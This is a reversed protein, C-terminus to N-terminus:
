DRDADLPITRAPRVGVRDFRVAPITWDRNASRVFSAQLFYGGGRIGRMVASRVALNGEEKDDLAQEGRAEPYKGPRPDQCWCWINGHMDFLGYDNPKLSGVPWTRESSNNLYWAYKKLLEETEGYYRATETEARCAYEMEAETPLRYGSLGLYNVKMKMWNQGQGLEIKPMPGEPDKEYCWQDEPLGEQQSLWNCYQAAEHWLVGLIPCTPDPMKNMGQHSFTPFLRRFQKLTVAHAALAFTRGIRKEHQGEDDDRGAEASPSGMMFDVPGPLVVMTQGQGNVYWQPRAKENKKALEKHVHDLKQDRLRHDSAWAANERQLWRDQRWQRLLWEVAGHLGPDDATQYLEQLQKMVADREDPSLAEEGLEGLSLVLARRITVDPEQSMRQVVARADAGLPGLRHILYSRARPDPSHMLVPWASEPRGMRLLAVAANAQRKGLREKADDEADRPLRQDIVDQLATM